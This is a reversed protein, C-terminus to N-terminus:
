PEVFGYFLPTWKRPEIYGCIPQRFKEKRIQDKTQPFACRPTSLINSCIVGVAKARSMARNLPRGTDGRRDFGVAQGTLVWVHETWFGCEKRDFGVGFLDCRTAQGLAKM